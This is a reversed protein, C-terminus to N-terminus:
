FICLCAYHLLKLSNRACSFILKVIYQVDDEDCSMKNLVIAVPVNKILFGSGQITAFSLILKEDVERHSTASYNEAHKPLGAHM